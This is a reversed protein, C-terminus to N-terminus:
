TLNLVQIKLINKIMKQLLIKSYLENELYIDKLNSNIYSVIASMIKAKIKRIM